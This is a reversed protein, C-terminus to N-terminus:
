QFLAKPNVIQQSAGDEPPILRLLRDDRDLFRGTGCGRGFLIERCFRNTQQGDLIERVSIPESAEM